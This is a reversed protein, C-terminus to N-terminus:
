TKQRKSNKVTKKNEVKIGVKHEERKYPVVPKSKDFPSDCVWCANELQALARACKECYLADCNSCIYNFGSVKGKCVLCIKKERFFTVQEENIMEPKEKLLKLFEQVDDKQQTPEDSFEKYDKILWGAIRDPM